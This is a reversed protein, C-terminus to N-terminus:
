PWFWFCPTFAICLRALYSCTAVLSILGWLKEGLMLLMLLIVRLRLSLFGQFTMQRLCAAPLCPLPTLGPTGQNDYVGGNQRGQGMVYDRASDDGM